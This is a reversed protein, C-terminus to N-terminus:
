PVAIATSEMLNVPQQYAQPTAARDLLASQQQACAAAAWLFVLLRRM